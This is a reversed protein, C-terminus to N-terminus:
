AKTRAEIKYTHKQRLPDSRTEKRQVSKGQIEKGPTTLRGTKLTNYQVSFEINQIGTEGQVGKAAKGQATTYLANQYFM